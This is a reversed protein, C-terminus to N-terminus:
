RAAPPVSTLYKKADDICQRRKEEGMSKLMIDFIKALVVNTIDDSTPLEGSINHHQMFEILIKNCIPGYSNKPLNLKQENVNSM